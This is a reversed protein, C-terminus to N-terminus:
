ILEFSNGMYLIDLWSNKTPDRTGPSSYVMGPRLLNNLNPPYGMLLRVTDLQSIWCSCLAPVGPQESMPAVM